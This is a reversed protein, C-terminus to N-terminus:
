QSAPLLSPSGAVAAFVGINAWFIWFTVWIKESKTLNNGIKVRIEGWNKRFKGIKGWNEELKWWIERSHKGLKEFIKGLNKGTEEM